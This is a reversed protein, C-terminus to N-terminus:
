FLKEIDLSKIIEFNNKQNNLTNYAESFFISPTSDLLDELKKVIKINAKNKHNVYIFKILYLVKKKFKFLNPDYAFGNLEKILSVCEEIIEIILNMKEKDYIFLFDSYLSENNIISM